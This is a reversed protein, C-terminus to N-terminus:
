APTRNNARMQLTELLLRLSSFGAAVEHAGALCLAGSDCEGWSVGIARIGAGRAMTMDLKKDSVMAAAEPLALAQRMVGRLVEANPRCLGPHDDACCLVDFVDQGLGKRKLRSETSLRSRTTTAALLWGTQKLDDLMRAAGPRLVHGDGSDCLAAIRDAYARRWAWVDEPAHADGLQRLTEHLPLRAWARLQEAQPPTRGISEFARTMAAIKSGDCDILVGELEFIALRRM